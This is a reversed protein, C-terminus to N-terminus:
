GGGQLKGRFLQFLTLGAGLALIVTLWVPVWGIIIGLGLVMLPMAVRLLESKRFVIFLVIMGLMIILFKGMDTLWGNNELWQEYSDKMSNGGELSTGSGTVSFPIDRIYSWTSDGSLTLRAVYSGAVGPAPLTITNLGYVLGTYASGFSDGDSSILQISANPLYTQVKSATGIQVKITMEENQGYSTKNLRYIIGDAETPVYWYCSHSDALLNSIDDDIIVAHFYGSTLTSYTKDLSIVLGDYDEFGTGVTDPTLILYRWAGLFENATNAKWYTDNLEELTMNLFESSSNDSNGWIRLSHSDLEDSQINTKWHLFMLDNAQVMYATFPYLYQPDNTDVAYITNLAEDDSPTPMLYGWESVVGSNNDRLRVFGEYTAPIDATFEYDGDVRISDEVSKLILDDSDILDLDLPAGSDGYVTLVVGEDTYGNRPTDWTINDTTESGDTETDVAANGVTVPVRPAVAEDMTLELYCYGTGRLSARCEKFSEYQPAVGTSDYVSESYSFTVTQSVPDFAVSFDTIPFEIWTDAAYESYGAIESSIRTTTHPMAYQYDTAVAAGKTPDYSSDMEYMSWAFTQGQTFNYTKTHWQLWVSGELIQDASTMNVSSVDFILIDRGLIHWMNNNLYASYVAPDSTQWSVCTNGAGARMNGYTDGTSTGGPYTYSVSKSNDSLNFQETVNGSAYAVGPKVMSLGGFPVVTGLGILLIAVILFVSIHRKM